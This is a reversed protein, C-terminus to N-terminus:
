MKQKLSLQDNIKLQIFRINGRVKGIYMEGEDNGFLGQFSGHCRYFHGDSDEVNLKELEPYLGHKKSYYPYFLGEEEEIVAFVTKDDAALRDIEREMDVWLEDTKGEHGYFYVIGLNIDEQIEPIRKLFSM